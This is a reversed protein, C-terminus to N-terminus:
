PCRNEPLACDSDIVYDIWQLADFDWQQLNNGASPEFLDGNANEKASIYVITREPGTRISPVDAESPGAGGSMNIKDFPTICADDIGMPDNVDTDRIPMSIYKSTSTQSRLSAIATSPTIPCNIPQSTTYSEVLADEFYVELVVSTFDVIIQLAIENCLSGQFDNSGAAKLKSRFFTGGEFLRSRSLTEQPLIATGQNPDYDPRGDYCPSCNLTDAM